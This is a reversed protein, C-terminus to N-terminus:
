RQDAELPVAIRCALGDSEFHVSITGRTEGAIAELLRTGFGKHSPPVVAPGGTEKWHLHMQDDRRTWSISVCGCEVSLAGYKAANTCLEHLALSIATTSRSPLQLDEGDLIFPDRDSARYPSTIKQVVGLMRAGPVEGELVMDAAVSLARMRASFSEAASAFDTKGRFSQIALSHAVALSNKVRHQLERALLALREEFNRRETIDVKVGTVQPHGKANPKYQARLLLRKRDGGPTIISVEAQIQTRDALPAGKPRPTYAGRASRKRVEELTVGERALRELEGPAYLRRIDDFTPKADPPLGYLMNLEPSHTITGEALDVEWVAMKGAEIALRLREESEILAIAALHETTVDEIIGTYAVHEGDSNTVIEVRSSIWRVDRNDARQIRFSFTDTRASGSRITDIWARDETHCLSCFEEFTVKRNAPLGCLDLLRDTALFVRRAIDYDWVAPAAAEAAKRLREEGRQSVGVEALAM